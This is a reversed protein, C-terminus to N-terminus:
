TPQPGRTLDGSAILKPGAPTQLHLSGTSDIGLLLGSLHHPGDQITVLRNRYALRDPWDSVASSEDNCVAAYRKSLADFIRGMLDEAGSNSHGQIEAFSTATEPRARDPRLNLGFGLLASEVNSGALSSTILIGALKKGRYLIDNPWKLEIGLDLNPDLAECIALGAAVSFPRFRDISIQPRLLVSCYLGVGPPSKWVRDSRGRGHSQSAAIITVGESAGLSELRRAIDMTSTVSGM